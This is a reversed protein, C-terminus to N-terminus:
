CEGAGRRKCAFVDFMTDVNPVLAVHNPCVLEHLLSASARLSKPEGADAILRIHYLPKANGAQHRGMTSIKKMTSPQM